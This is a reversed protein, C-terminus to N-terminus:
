KEKSKECDVCITTEPMLMLRDTDIMKKCSQCIGYKGIKILSLAKKIQVLKRSVQKQQATVNQHGFQEAADTDSAANDIVREADKFPDEKSLHARRRELRQAEGRLFNEIPKLINLPFKVVPKLKSKEM